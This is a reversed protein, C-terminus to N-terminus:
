GGGGDANLFTTLDVNELDLEAVRRQLLHRLSLMGRVRGADDVVPLHRFRGELMLDLVEEGKRGDRTTRVDTTMIEAVRTVDPDRREAICRGVVDRESVIGVLREGALVVAAGVHEKMLLRALDRVTADPGISVAPSKALKLLDDM